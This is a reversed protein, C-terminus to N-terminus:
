PYADSTEETTSQAQCIMQIIVLPHMQLPTGELRIIQCGMTNMQRKSSSIIGLVTELTCRLSFM